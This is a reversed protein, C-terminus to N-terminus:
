QLLAQVKARVEANCMQYVNQIRGRSDESLKATCFTQFQGAVNADQSMNAIFVSLM